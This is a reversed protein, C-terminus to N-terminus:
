CPIDNDAEIELNISKRKIIIEIDSHPDSENFFKEFEKSSLLHPFTALMVGAIDSITPNGPFWKRLIKAAVCVNIEKSM